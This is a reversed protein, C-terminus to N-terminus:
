KREAELNMLKMLILHEVMKQEFKGCAESVEKQFGLATVTDPQKKVLEAQLYLAKDYITQRFM